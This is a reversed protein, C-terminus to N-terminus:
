SKEVKMSNLDIVSILSKDEINVYIKGKGDSAPFEPKGSLPITTVVKNTVADLVTADSSGGNFTFVKKSFQDYLIADPNQGAIKVDAIVALTQLNIVKV